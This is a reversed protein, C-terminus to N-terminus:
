REGLLHYQSHRAYRKGGGGNKNEKKKSSKKMKRSSKLHIQSSMVSDRKERDFTNEGRGM